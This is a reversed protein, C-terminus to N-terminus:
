RKQENYCYECLYRGCDYHRQDNFHVEECEDCVFCETSYCNSCIVEGEVEYWDDDYIHRGCCSCECSEDDYLGYQDACHRCVMMNPDIIREQDCCLCKVEGGITFDPEDRYVWWNNKISYYPKTYCSSLLLDNFNLTNKADKIIKEWEYLKHNVPIYRSSLYHLRGNSTNVETIMDNRWSTFEDEPCGLAATLHDHICQLGSESSFPYQRGAIVMDRDQSLFLLMRWKKSNWPVDHPFSPLIVNNAGKIYCIITTSDVMYSLNGARYDGDLAHCSRWNYTNESSSLYDLPHVSFCLTGEVKDEQIIRSAVTQFTDLLIKDDEFYKFAKVLKAGINIKVGAYEYPTCVTNEYFGQQNLEVFTSLDPRDYVLKLQSVFEQFNKSREKEDLHFQVPTKVEYILQNGFGEIIDKKAEYWREFLSDVKLNPINQSYQIVKKFQEKIEEYM